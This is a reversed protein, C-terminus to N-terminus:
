LDELTRISRRAGPPRFGQEGLLTEIEDRWNRVSREHIGLLEGRAGPSLGRRLHTLAVRLHLGFPRAKRGAGPLRQRGTREERARKAADALPALRAALEDFQAPTTGCLDRSPGIKVVCLAQM